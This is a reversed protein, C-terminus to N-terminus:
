FIAVETRSLRKRANVDRSIESQTNMHFDTRRLKCPTCLLINAASIRAFETSKLPIFGSKRRFSDWSVCGSPYIFM